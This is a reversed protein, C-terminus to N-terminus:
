DSRLQTHEPDGVAENCLFTVLRPWLMIEAQRRFFGFHGIKKMGAEVPTVQLHNTRLGPFIGLLRRTGVSTAFADDAIELVLANGTVKPYRDLLARVRDADHASEPRFDPSRRAAWQLAIGAPIDEGLRLLRAPFYGFARTMIPMVGHWLVAMPLRYRRLYDKYYGTHAGIFVFRSIEAVNPAGGILLAGLSHAVGVVEADRYSSRLYAIAGGCDFESWDEVGAHLKRLNAPRSTGIGRYDYTLIPYGNAAIFRAFRVYRAAPVGGGGNFLVVTRSKRERSPAYLTGGLEYGDLAKFRITTEVVDHGTMLVVYSEGRM